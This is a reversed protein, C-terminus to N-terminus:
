SNMKRLVLVDKKDLERVRVFSRYLEVIEDEVEGIVMDQVPFVLRKVGVQLPVVSMGSFALFIPDLLERTDECWDGLFWGWRTILLRVAM